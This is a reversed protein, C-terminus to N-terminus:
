NRFLLNSEIHQRADQAAEKKQPNFQAGKRPPLLLSKVAEHGNAAQGVVHIDTESKLLAALGERLITHDEALLVTISKM